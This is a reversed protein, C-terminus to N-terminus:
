GHGEGKFFGRTEFANNPLRDAGARLNRKLVFDFLLANSERLSRLAPVAATDLLGDDVLRDLSFLPLIGPLPYDSGNLLRGEWERKRLLPALWELRNAQTVASLDGFLLGEYRKEAMLRSFLEFNPVDPAKDPDRSKDLDASEGMTACHAAVVRV